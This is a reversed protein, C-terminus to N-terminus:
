KMVGDGWFINKFSRLKKAIKADLAICFVTWLM